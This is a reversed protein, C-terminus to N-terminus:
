LAPRREAAARRSVMTMIAAFVAGVFLLHPRSVDGGLGIRALLPEILWSIGIFSTGLLLAYAIPHRSSDAHSRGDTTTPAANPM